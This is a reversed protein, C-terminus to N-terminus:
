WLEESVLSDGPKDIQGCKFAHANADKRSLFEGTETVFGMTIKFSQFRGEDEYAYFVQDHRWGEKGVYVNNRSKIAARTIM